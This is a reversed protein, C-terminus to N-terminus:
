RKVSINLVDDVFIRAIEPDFQTGVNKMIEEIAADRTMAKRYVRDQTMADYSDVIALIRSLLPINKGSLGQPYGKGDWREHHSLIYESIHQLEPSTSTIRYGIEPHKKMESWENETLKGPKTLIRDDIGIKGIDHLTALLELENLEENDLGLAMGLKRSLEALREAHEETENSKEFMTTKISSIISSHISKYELLKLRYMFEEAVRFVKEFPEEIKLKTAYGLSISAYYTEKGAENSYDECKNKIINVISKASQADTQPLLICFEDGGIRCIIDKDRCCARLIKAMEVLLKDGEEHGFADNILKLGNIDGVIISFPMQQEIDLLRRQEEFFTRNYVGTLIDHYTLYLNEEERKRRETIDRSIGILGLVTGDSNSYSTKLTELYVKTGDPYIVMEDNIRPKDLKLMEKDMEIFLNAMEKDFLDLDTLGILDKEERGAFKEFASNCGVYVSNVDKYFILDPVSNILTKLLKQKNQHEYYLEKYRAESEELELRTQNNKFENFLVISLMLSAVPYILLVPAIIQKFVKSTLDHPLAVVCMLMVVHAIFGVMYFEIFVRSKKSLTHDLRMKNWILGVGSTLITVLVGMLAGNGGIIIRRIIIIAAAVSAPIFGFFMATVSVLISRTDFIIGPVIQVPIEMLLIGLFGIIVGTIINKWRSNKEYKLFLLNYVISIALLLSANYVLGSIIEKNM